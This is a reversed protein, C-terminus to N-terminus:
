RGRLASIAPEFGARPVLSAPGRETVALATTM